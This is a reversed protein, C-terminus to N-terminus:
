GAVNRAKMMPKNQAKKKFTLNLKWMVGALLFFASNYKEIIDVSENLM